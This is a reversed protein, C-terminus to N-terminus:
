GLAKGSGLNKFIKSVFGAVQAITGAAGIFRALSLVFFRCRSRCRFPLDHGFPLFRSILCILNFQVSCDSAAQKWGDADCRDWEASGAADVQWATAKASAPAQRLRTCEGGQRALTLRRRTRM